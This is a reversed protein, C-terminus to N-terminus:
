MSSSFLDTIPYTSKCHRCHAKGHLVKPFAIKPLSSTVLTSVSITNMQKLKTVTIHVYGSVTKRPGWELGGSFKLPVTILSSFRVEPFSKWTHCHHQFTPVWYMWSVGWVNSVIYTKHKCSTRNNLKWVEDVYKVGGVLGGSDIVHIAIGVWWCIDSINVVCVSQIRV